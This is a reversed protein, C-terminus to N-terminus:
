RAGGEEYAAHIRLMAPGEPLARRMPDPALMVRPDRLAGRRGAERGIEYGLLFTTTERAMSVLEILTRLETLACHLHSPLANFLAVIIQERAKVDRQRMEPQERLIRGYETSILDKLYRWEPCAADTHAQAVARAIETSYIARESADGALARARIREGREREHREVSWRHWIEKSTEGTAPNAIAPSLARRSV